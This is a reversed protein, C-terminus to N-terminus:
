IHEMPTQYLDNEIEGYLDSWSKFVFHIGKRALSSVIKSYLKGYYEPGHGYAQRLASMCNTKTNEVLDGEKSVWNLQNEISSVELAPLFHGSKLPHPKWACKLFTTESIDCYPEMEDPVNKHVDTYMMNHEAFFKHLTKVNYLDISTHAVSHNNDDGFTTVFVEKYWDEFTKGTLVIWAIRLYVSNVMSNFISTFLSGSVIGCIVQYLINHVLHVSNILEQAIIKIKKIHEPTAGNFEYWAVIAEFVGHAVQSQAQPGFNSYDGAVHYPGKRSFERHLETWEQSYINMGISHELDKRGKTYALIFDGLLQRTHITFDVPSMSFIRTGGKKRCKKLSLTEDKLCDTFVTFPKIGRSRMTDKVTMIKRLEPHITYDIVENDVRKVDFLWGKGKRGKPRLSSLPFGESTDMPLSNLGIDPNGFIAEKESLIGVKRIPKCKAILLNKLDECAMDVIKQDFEKPPQGHKAVGDYLPSCGHPLREDFPTLPAPETLIPFDGHIVSPVIQTKGSQLHGYEPPVKGLPFVSGEMARDDVTIPELNPQFVEMISDEIDMFEEKIIKEAGGVNTSPVGFTHMGIIKNSDLNILISGCFGYAHEGDYIWTEDLILSSSISGGDILQKRRERFQVEKLTRSLRKGDESVGIRVLMGNSSMRQQEAVCAFHKMINRFQPMIKPMKITCLSSFLVYGTASKADEKDEQTDLIYFQDVIKPDLAVDTGNLVFFLKANHYDRYYQIEEIYHRIMLCDRDGLMLTRYLRRKSVGLHEFTIVLFITNKEILRVVDELNQSSQLIGADAKSETTSIVLKRKSTLKRTERQLKAKDYAPGEVEGKPESSKYFLYWVGIVIALASLVIGYWSTFFNHLMSCCKSLISLCKDKFTSVDEIPIEGLVEMQPYYDPYDDTIRVLKFVYPIFTVCRLMCSHTPCQKGDIAGYKSNYSCIYQRKESDYVYASSISYHMCDVLTSMKNKVICILEDLPNTYTNIVIDVQEKLFAMLKDYKSGMESRIFYLFRWMTDLIGNKDVRRFAERVYMEDDPDSQLVGIDGLRGDATTRFINNQANILQRPTNGSCYPALNNSERVINKNATSFPDFSNSGMFRRSPDEYLSVLPDGELECANHPTDWGMGHKKYCEYGHATPMQLNLLSNAGYTFPRYLGCLLASMRKSWDSFYRFLPNGRNLLLMESWSKGHTVVNQQDIKAALNSVIEFLNSNAPINNFLSAYNPIEKRLSRYYENLRHNYSMLSQQQYHTYKDKLYQKIIDYEVWPTWATDNRNAFYAMRFELHGYNQFIEPGMQEGVQVATIKNRYCPLSRKIRAELVVDRRRWLANLDSCQKPRPFTHNSTTFVFKPDYLRDKDKIDAMPPCLPTSNVVNFYVQLDAVIESETEIQFADDIWMVPQSRCRSWYKDGSNYKFIKEGQFQVNGELILDTTMTEVIYTKGCGPEGSIWVSFPEKRVNGTKGQAVCQKHLENIKSLYRQLLSIQVDNKLKTIFSQTILEGILWALYVRDMLELDCFIDIDKGPSTLFSVENCWTQIFTKNYVMLADVDKDAVNKWFCLGSVVQKITDLHVKLFQTMSNATMTYNRMGTLLSGGVLKGHHSSNVFSLGLIGAISTIILSWFSSVNDALSDDSELVGVDGQVQQTTTLRKKAEFISECISSFLSIAKGILNFSLVGIKVLMSIMSWVLTKISPNILCHGLQSMLDTLASKVSFDLSINGMKKIKEMIETMVNGLTETVGGIQEKVNETIPKLIHENVGRTIFNEPGELVGLPPISPNLYDMFSMPKFGQFVYPCFDDAVKSFVLFKYTGDILSASNANVGVMFSGMDAAIRQDYDLFGYDTRQLYNLQNGNYWPVELNLIQNVSLTLIDYPNSHTMTPTDILDLLPFQQNDVPIKDAADYQVWVFVGPLYPCVIRYRMGGRYYRYGSLLIKSHSSRNIADFADSLNPVPLVPSVKVRFIARPYQNDPTDTFVFTSNYVPRRLLDKVSDFNEGFSNLGWQNNVYNQVSTVENPIENRESELVAVPQGQAWIITLMPTALSPPSVPNITLSLMYPMMTVRFDDTDVYSELLVTLPTLMDQKPVVTILQGGIMVCCLYRINVGLYSLLPTSSVLFANSGSWRPSAAWIAPNFGNDIYLVNLFQGTPFGAVDNVVFISDLVNVRNLLYAPGAPVYTADEALVLTPQTLNACEFGDAGAMYINIDVSSNVNEPQQLRQLVNVVFVGPKRSYAHSNPKPIRRNYWEAANIFPTTYTISLNNADLSYTTFASNRIMDNTIVSDVDIGPIYGMILGGTYFKNAIIDMRFRLPGRFLNFMSAVVGVPPIYRLQKEFSIPSLQYETMELLPECSIILLTTDPADTESWSIQRFLGFIKSIQSLYEINELKDDHLTQGTPNLRLTRLPESIDTGHAWSQSSYPLLFPTASVDPPNDRNKDAKRQNLLNEAMSVGKGVINLGTGFMDMSEWVGVARQFKNTVPPYNGFSGDRKGNYEAEVFRIFVAVDVRASGSGFKLPNLVQILVDVMDLVSSNIETSSIKTQVFPQHNVYPIKLVADNSGGANILVHNTQSATYPNIRIDSDADASLEYFSSVQLQGTLFMQAKTEIRIEMDGRWLYNVNFPILPPSNASVNNELIFRPLTYRKLLGESMANWEFTDFLYWQSTLNDYKGISETTTKLQNLVVATTPIGISSETTVDLNTHLAEIKVSTTEGHSGEIMESELVGTEPDIIRNLDNIQTLLDTYCLELAAKKNAATYWKSRMHKRVVIIQVRWSHIKNDVFNAREEINVDMFEHHNTAYNNYTVSAPGPNSEIGARLLLQRRWEAISHDAQWSQLNLIMALLHPSVYVTKTDDEGYELRYRGMSIFIEVMFDIEDRITNLSDIPVYKITPSFYDYNTVDFDGYDFGPDATYFFTYEMTRMDADAKCIINTYLQQIEDDAFTIRRFNMFNRMVKLIALNKLTTPNYKESANQLTNMM